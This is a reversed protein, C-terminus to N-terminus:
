DGAIEAWRDSLLMKMVAELAQLPKEQQVNKLNFDPNAYRFLSLAQEPNMGVVLERLDELDHLQLQDDPQDLLNLREALQQSPEPDMELALTARHVIQPWLAQPDLQSLPSM